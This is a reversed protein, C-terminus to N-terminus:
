DTKNKAEDVATELVHLTKDITEFDDAGTYMDFFAYVDDQTSFKQELYDQIIVNHAKFPEFDDPHDLVYELYQASKDGTVPLKPLMHGDFDSPCLKHLAYILLGNKLQDINKNEETRANEQDVVYTNFFWYSLGFFFPYLLIAFM